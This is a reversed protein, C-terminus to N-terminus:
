GEAEAFLFRSGEPLGARWTELAARFGAVDEAQTAYFAVTRGGLFASPIDLQLSGLRIWDAGRGEAIWHDYILVLPVNQDRVIEGAWGPAGEFRARRAEGSALGWLDLVHDSHRWSVYGLDNVAVPVPAFDKLFRSMQGQQSQIARVNWQAYVQTSPLYTFIVAGFGFAVLLARGRGRLRGLLLIAAAAVILLAYNEYRDLFGISGLMLHALGALAVAMGFRQYRLDAGGLRALVLTILAGGAILLGPGQHLNHQLKQLIRLIIAGEASNQETLKALVSSPLPDLGLSLLFGVFGAVPLVALAALGLAARGQGALALYGSAALALALGELRFLPALLVGAALLVSVRGTEIFRWLGLVIALSAAGHALNEMGAYAVIATNLAFPAVFGLVVGALGFGARWIAWGLMASVALLALSNWVLPLYRQLDSGAFPALLVPYLPSSAASAYEGANVGYHGRGIQEAMALHIYVDDLPYDFGGIGNSLAIAQLGVFALVGGLIAAGMVHWREPAQTM